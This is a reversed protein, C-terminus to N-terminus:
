LKECAQRCKVHGTFLPKKSSAKSTCSLGWLVDGWSRQGHGWAPLRMRAGTWPVPQDKPAFTGLANPWKGNWPGKDWLTVPKYQGIAELRWVRCMKCLYHRKSFLFHFKFGKIWEDWCVRCYVNEAPCLKQLSLCCSFRKLEYGKLSRNTFCGCIKKSSYKVGQHGFVHLDQINAPTQHAAKTGRACM